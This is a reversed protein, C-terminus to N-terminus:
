ESLCETCINRMHEKKCAYRNCKVCTMRTSRNQKRPCVSCRGVYRTYKEPPPPAVDKLGLLLRARRRIEKPLTQIASRFEIQPKILEWAFKEIFGSRDIKEMPNKAKHVILANIASINLLNYFVVMPWRRTNRAVNYKQCLQDVIDVGIKTRNYDTVIVPKNKEGTAEDIEDDHHMSSLLVVTKNKKPCYSVITCDRQFGFISSGEQRSKTPLFEKPVERRHKRITGLYTLMKKKLYKVLSLSTFWNDGTINRNSGEVPQIMRLTIKEATNEQRYPGNPQTGVYTELNFTYFTKADVLAFTKIGYKAPKSPIYQKFACRGRFALLQEDVTLFESPIFNKQFNALFVEFLERIPAMKDLERREARTTVDDFRLSRLLFRFRKESMALYCSELGNGRSNDWINRVNKRGCRMTGVLFLIGLLARIERQDTDRADRMRQFKNRQLNIYINTSRTIIGIITPTLFLQLCEIENTTNRADGKVGPFRKVINHSHVRVQARPKRKSWKTKKDKGIFYDLTGSLDEESVVESSTDGEKNSGQEMIDMSSVAEAPRDAEQPAADEPDMDEWNSDEEIPTEEGSSLEELWRM